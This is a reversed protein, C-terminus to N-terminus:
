ENPKQIAAQQQEELRTAEELVKQTSDLSATARAYKNTVEQRVVAHRMIRAIERPPLNDSKDLSDQAGARLAAEEMKEGISSIVVIPLSPFLEQLKVVAQIDEADPLMLDLLIVDVRNGATLYTVADLLSTAPTITMHKDARPFMEVVFKTMIVSDEVLLVHLQRDM